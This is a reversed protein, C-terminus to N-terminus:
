QCGIKLKYLIANVVDILCSKTTFGRKTTSLQSLISNKITYKDFVTYRPNEKHILKPVWLIVSLEFSIDHKLM